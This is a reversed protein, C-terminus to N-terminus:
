QKDEKLLRKAENYLKQEWHRLWGQPSHVANVARGKIRKEFTAIVLKYYAIAETNM